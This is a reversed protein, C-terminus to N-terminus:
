LKGSGDVIDSKYVKEARDRLRRLVASMASALLALAELGAIIEYIVFDGDGYPVPNGNPFRGTMLETWLITSVFIAFISLVFAIRSAILGRRRNSAVFSYIVVPIAGLVLVFGVAPDLLGFLFYWGYM